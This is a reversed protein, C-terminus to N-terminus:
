LLFTLKSLWKKCVIFVNLHQYFEPLKWKIHDWYLAEKFEISSVDSKLCDGWKYLSIYVKESFM